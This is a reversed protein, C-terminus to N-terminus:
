KATLLQLPQCVFAKSLEVVKAEFAQSNDVAQKMKRVNCVPLTTYCLVESFWM